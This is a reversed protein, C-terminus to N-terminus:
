PSKEMAAGAAHAMNMFLTWEKELVRIVSALKDSGDDRETRGELIAENYLDLMKRASADLSYKEAERTIVGREPPHEKMARLAESFEAEDANQLLIGTQDTMADRVGSADLAVIPLGAAMAEIVVIGQTETLSSFAFLDMAAYCDALTKGSAPGFLKLRDPMERFIERLAEELPGYGVVLFVASPDTKLFRLVARALFEINKEPALRGLHGIVFADDAIGMKSRIAKGDGAGFLDIDVGTPIVSIPTIVGRERILNAISPTPAVVRDCLNAYGTSLEIAFRRMAPSDGPVYHTYEEYLTHHTFVLPLNRRASSRQATYGLLFPHHSHIIQPEFADLADTIGTLIPLRVSFDSGNFNQIAPVRVVEEEHAPSDEFEPAIVLVRHGFRRFSKTFTEVSRAVGGKHPTFTNTMMVVRTM